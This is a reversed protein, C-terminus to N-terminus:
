LALRQLLGKDEELVQLLNKKLDPQEKVKKLFDLVEILASEPVEEIVKKIEQKLDFITM